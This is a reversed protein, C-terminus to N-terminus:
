AAPAQLVPSTTDIHSARHSHILAVNRFSLLANAAPRSLERGAAKAM